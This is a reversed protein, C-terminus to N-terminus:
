QMLLNCLFSVKKGCPAPCEKSLHCNAAIGRVRAAFAKTSEESMQRAEHLSVTHVAAHLVSVALLKLRALMLEETNLLDKGGQDFALRKLDPVMCSWLEDLMNQGSIGTARKYDDWESLFFRWDHESMDLSVTPRARKDVKCTPRGASAAGAAGPTPHAQQTHLSMCTLQAAFDPAGDPTSYDCGAATCTMPPLPAM